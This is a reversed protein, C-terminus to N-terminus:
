GTFAVEVAGLRGFDARARDGPAARHFGSCTGTSVVIGAPLGGRERMLNALWLLANLPHGLCDAGTGQGVARGNVEMRVPQADLRRTRWRPVAPGLILAGNSGQDAILSPTGVKLWDAYRSDVIEIALHLSGVAGTAEALSYARKRPPLPRGLRFAFEGELGRMPYAAAPVTTGSDFIRGAFVRGAFPGRTKLIKRAVASTCGIKWGGVAFGLREALLDQIRYGDAAGRPRCHEPLERLPAGGDWAVALLDAATKAQDRNM